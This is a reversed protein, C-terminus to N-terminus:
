FGASGRSAMRAYEQFLRRWTKGKVATDRQTPSSQKADGRKPTHSSPVSRTMEEVARQALFAPFCVELLDPSVGTRTCYDRLHMTVVPAMWGNVTFTSRFAADPAAWRGIKWSYSLGYSTAFMFLDFFPSGSESYNEWDLVGLGGKRLLLNRPWFDGQCAVAPLRESELEAAKRIISTIFAREAASPSFNRNYDSLSAAVGHSPPSDGFRFEGTRTAKQFAILWDVALTFHREVLRRPRFSNRMEWYISRGPMFGEAFATHGADRIVALPEPLTSGLAEGIGDRLAKLNAHERELTAVHQPAASMKIIVRPAKDGHCFGFAVVKGRESHGYDALTILSPERHPTQGPECLRACVSRVIADDDSVCSGTRLGLVASVPWGAFHIARAATAVAMERRSHPVLLQQLYFRLASPNSLPINFRDHLVYGDRPGKQISM